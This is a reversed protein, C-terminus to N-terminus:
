DSSVIDASDKPLMKILYNEVSRLFAETYRVENDYKEVLPGYYDFEQRMKKIYTFTQKFSGKEYRERFLNLKRSYEMLYLPFEQSYQGIIFEQSNQNILPSLESKRKASETFSHTTFSNFKTEIAKMNDEDIEIEESKSVDNFLHNLPSGFGSSFDRIALDLTHKSDDESQPNCCLKNKCYEIIQETLLERKEQTMITNIKDQDLCSRALDSKTVEVKSFEANDIVSNTIDIIALDTGDFIAETLISNRSDTLSMLAKTFDAGFMNANNFTAFMLTAKYFNAKCLTANKFVCSTLDSNAFKAQTLDAGTFDCDIFNLDSLDENVLHEYSFDNLKDQDLNLHKSYYSQLTKDRCCIKFSLMNEALLARFRNTVYPSTYYTYSAPTIFDKLEEKTLDNITSTFGQLKQNIEKLLKNGWATHDAPPNYLSYNCKLLIMIIARGLQRFGPEGHKLLLTLKQKTNEKRDAGPSVLLTVGAELVSSFIEEGSGTSPVNHENQISKRIIFESEPKEGSGERLYSLSGSRSRCADM